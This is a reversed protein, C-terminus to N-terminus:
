FLVLIPAASWDSDLVAKAPGSYNVSTRPSAEAAPRPFEIGIVLADAIVELCSVNVWPVGLRLLEDFRTEYGEPERLEDSRILIRGLSDVRVDASVELLRV